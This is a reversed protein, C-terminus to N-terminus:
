KSKKMSKADFGINTEESQAAIEAQNHQSQERVVDPIQKNLKESAPFSLKLSYIEDERMGALCSIGLSVEIKDAEMKEITFSELINKPFWCRDFIRETGETTEAADTYSLSYFKALTTPFPVDNDQLDKKIEPNNLLVRM